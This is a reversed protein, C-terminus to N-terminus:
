NGIRQEHELTAKLCARCIALPATGCHYRVIEHGGRWLICCWVDDAGDSNAEMSLDVDLGEAILKELVRWAAAINTSYARVYRYPKYSGYEAHDDQRECYTKCEAYSTFDKCICSSGKLISGAQPQWEPVIGMVREAVATNLEENMM